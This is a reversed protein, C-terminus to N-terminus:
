MKSLKGVDIAKAYALKSAADASGTVNIMFKNHVLLMVDGQQNQIGRVPGIRILKGMAAALAPNAMMPGFQMIMASDGTISIQVNEGKSNTYERTASSAGLLAAGVSQAQAKEAKWGPLPDPLLTVFAEANKQGILQSALDLQQKAGGLDGAQYAKRGQDIADLIDDGAHAPFAAVALLAAALMLRIPHM